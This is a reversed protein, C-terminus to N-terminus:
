LFRAALQTLAAQGAELAPLAQATLAYVGDDCLQKMLGSLEPLEDLEEQSLTEKVGGASNYLENLSQLRPLLDLLVNKSLAFLKSLLDKELQSMSMVADEKDTATVCTASGPRLDLGTPACWYPTTM